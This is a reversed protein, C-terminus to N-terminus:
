RERARKQEARTLAIFVKQAEVLGGGMEEIESPRWLEFLDLTMQKATEDDLLRLQLSKRAELAPGARAWREVFERADDLAPSQPANPEKM